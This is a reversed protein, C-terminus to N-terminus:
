SLFGSYAEQLQRYDSLDLEEIVAPSEECLNAFLRVEKQASNGSAKDAALQDKVKPRRMRLQTVSRGDMEVPHNLEITEM